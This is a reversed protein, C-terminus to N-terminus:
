PVLVMQGFGAGAVRAARGTTNTTTFIVRVLGAQQPGGGGLCLVYARKGDPTIVIQDPAPGVAIPPGATDTAVAIPTVTGSDGDAVYVTKGSPTIAVGIPERGVTIPPGAKGTAVSIPWVTGVGGPDSCLVYVVAGDPTVAIAVPSRGV